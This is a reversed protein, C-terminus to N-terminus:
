VEGVRVSGSAFTVTQQLQARQARRGAQDIQLLVGRLWNHAFDVLPQLALRFRARRSRLGAAWRDFAVALPALELPRRVAM